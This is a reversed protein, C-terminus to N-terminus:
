HLPILIPPSPRVTIAASASQTGNTGTATIVYTTKLTPSVTLSGSPVVQGVGTLFVNTANISAWTLLVSQGNIITNTSAVLSVFPRSESGLAEYAGLSWSGVLPRPNGDKDRNLGPLNLGSLNVGAGIQPSGAVLHYDGSSVDVFTARNTFGHTNWGFQQATQFSLSSYGPQVLAILNPATTNYTEYSNYDFRLANTAAANFNDMNFLHIFQYGANQLPNVFINNTVYLWNSLPWDTYYPPASGASVAIRTTYFTNNFVRAGIRTTKNTASFLQLQIAANAPQVNDFVNNYINAQNDGDLYVATTGGSWSGSARFLNNYFNINTPSTSLLKVIDCRWYIGNQHPAADQGTWYEASYWKDYDVFRCDHVSVNDFYAVDSVYAIDMAWEMYDHLYCGVIEVNQVDKLCQIQIPNRVKTLECNTILLNHTEYAQGSLAGAARIGHGVLSANSIPAKNTFYGLEHLYCDAITVNQFGVEAVIGGGYNAAVTANTDSPLSAAGGIKGIDFNRIVTNSGTGFAYYFAIRNNTGYNDTILAKGTGWSGDSNGDYTIPLGNMGSQSVNIGGNGSVGALLYPVGGKFRVIDGPQLQTSGPGPPADILLSLALTSEPYGSSNFGFTQTGTKTSTTVTLKVGGPNQYTLTNGFTADQAGLFTALGVVGYGSSPVTLTIVNSNTAAVPGISNTQNVGTFLMASGAFITSGNLGVAVPYTGGPTAGIPIGWFQIQGGSSDVSSSGLLALNTGRWTVNTVAGGYRQQTAVLLYGSVSNTQLTLNWTVSTGSSSTSYNTATVFTTDASSILATDGPCHQWAANPSDGANNDSGAAYDIYYTVAPSQSVLSLLAIAFACVKLHKRFTASMFNFFERVTSRECIAYWIRFNKAPPFAATQCVARLVHLSLLM